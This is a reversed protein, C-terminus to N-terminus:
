TISFTALNVGFEWTNFTPSNELGSCSALSGGLAGSVGTAGLVRVRGDVDGAGGAGAKLPSAELEM